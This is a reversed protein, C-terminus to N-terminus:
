MTNMNNDVGFPPTSKADLPASKNHSPPIHGNSKVQVCIVNGYNTVCSFLVFITWAVQSFSFQRQEPRQVGHFSFARASVPGQKILVSCPVKEVKRDECAMKVTPQRYSIKFSESQPRRPQPV